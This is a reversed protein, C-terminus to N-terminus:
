GLLTSLPVAWLKDGLRVAQEGNYAIIAARCRPTRELFARLGALDRETWRSAAKVEIALCDRGSEVVFDVEHRGQINWFGLRAGPWHAELVAGLSHAVYTEFLPGRLPEEASLALDDVGALHAALGADGAYLKPAKSRVPEGPERSVSPPADVHVVDGHAGAM